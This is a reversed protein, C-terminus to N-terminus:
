KISAQEIEFLEEPNLYEKCNNKLNEVLEMNRQEIGEELPPNMIPGKTLDMGPHLKYTEDIKSRIERYEKYLNKCKIKDMINNKLKYDM